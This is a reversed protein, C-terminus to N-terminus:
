EPFRVKVGIYCRLREKPNALRVLVPVRGTKQDAAPSVFIVVVDVRGSRNASPSREFFWDPHCSPTQFKFVPYLRDNGPQRKRL